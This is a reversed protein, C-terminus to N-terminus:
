QTHIDQLIHKVVRGDKDFLIKLERIRTGSNAMRGLLPVYKVFRAPDDNVEYVWVECGNSFSTVMADGLARQVDEKSAQGKVLIASATDQSLTAVTGNGQSACGALSAVLVAAALARM